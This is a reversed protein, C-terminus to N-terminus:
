KETNRFKTFWEITLWEKPFDSIKSCIHSPKNKTKDWANIFYGVHALDIFDTSKALAYKNHGIIISIIGTLDSNRDENLLHYHIGGAAKELKKPSTFEHTEEINKGNKSLVLKLEYRVKNKTTTM